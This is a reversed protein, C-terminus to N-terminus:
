VFTTVVKKSSSFLFGFLHLCIGSVKRQINFYLSHYSNKDEKYKQCGFENLKAFAMEMNEM